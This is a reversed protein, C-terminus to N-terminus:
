MVELEVESASSSSCRSENIDSNGSAERKYRELEKLFKM